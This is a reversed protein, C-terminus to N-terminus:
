WSCKHLKDSTKETDIIVNNNEQLWYKHCIIYCIKLVSGGKIKQFLSM